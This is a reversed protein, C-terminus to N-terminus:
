SQSGPVGTRGGLARPPHSLLLLLSSKDPSISQSRTALPLRLQALLVVEEGDQQATFTHRVAKKRSLLPLYLLYGWSGDSRLRPCSRPVSRFRRADLWGAAGPVCE